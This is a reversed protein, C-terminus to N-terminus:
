NSNKYEEKLLNFIDQGTSMSPYQKRANEIDRIAEKLYHTFTEAEMTKLISLANIYLTVAKSEDNKILSCLGLNLMAVANTSDYTLAIQSYEICKDVNGNKYSQWGLNVYTSTKIDLETPKHPISVVAVAEINIWTANLSSNNALALYITKGPFSHVPLTITGGNYNSRSYQPM